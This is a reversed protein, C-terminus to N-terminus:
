ITTKMIPSTSQSWATHAALSLSNWEPYSLDRGAGYTKIRDYGRDILDRKSAGRLIDILMTFGVKGRLRKHHREYGEPRHGYRGYTRPIPSVDCNGCDHDMTENFYSLLIRRRCLSSEAYGAHAETENNIAQQGSEDVFGQLTIIDAYSYFMTAEAKVGDRGARGIEQYYSEINRPMNNHVVWRINSKDIGMGFAVTACVVQM